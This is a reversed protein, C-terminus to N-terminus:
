IATARHTPARHKHTLIYLAARWALAICIRNTRYAHCRVTARRAPKTRSAAAESRSSAPSEARYTVNWQLASIGRSKM